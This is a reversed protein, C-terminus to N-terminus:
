ECSLSNFLNLYRQLETENFVYSFSNNGYPECFSINRIWASFGSSIDDYKGSRGSFRITEEQSINLQKFVNLVYYMIDSVNRYIFSNCFKLADNAFIVLTFFDRDVHVQIYNGDVPRSKRFAYWLLPKTHHYLTIGPYHRDLVETLAEAVQFVVYSPPDSIRNALIVQGPDGMHNFNFYSDKKGPDYLAAPIITSKRSPTQIVIKKYRRLLFDDKAIIESIKEATFNKGEDPEFSRILVFKSRLSDLIAFSLGDSAATLSLEYNETANIDLTEDFLETFPM